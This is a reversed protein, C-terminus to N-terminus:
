NRIRSFRFDWVSGLDARCRDQIQWSSLDAVSGIEAGSRNRGALTRRQGSSGYCQVVAYNRRRVWSDEFSIPEDGRQGPPDVFILASDELQSIGRICTLTAFGKTAPPSIKRLWPKVQRELAAKLITKVKTPENANQSFSGKSELIMRHRAGDEFIFDAAKANKPVAPDSALHGAFIYGCKNAFLLSIGQAIRGNYSTLAFDNLVGTINDVVRLNASSTAVLSASQLLFALGPLLPNKLNLFDAKAIAHALQWGSFTLRPLEEAYSYWDPDNPLRPKLIDAEHWEWVRVSRNGLLAALRFLGGIM